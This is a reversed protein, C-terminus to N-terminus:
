KKPKMVPPPTEGLRIVLTERAGGHGQQAAKKLWKGAEKFDLPLYVGNLYM